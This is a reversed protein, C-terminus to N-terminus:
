PIIPLLGLKILLNELSYFNFFDINQSAITTTSPNDSVTFVVDNFDNDSYPGKSDKDEFAVLLSNCSGSMILQAQTTKDTPSNNVTTFRPNDGGGSAVFKFGGTQANLTPIIFFGIKKGEEFLVAVDNVDKILTSVIPSINGILGKANGYIIHEAKIIGNETEDVTVSKKIDIIGNKAEDYYYWGITNNYGCYKYELWAYLNTNDTITIFGDKSSGDFLPAFASKEPKSDGEKFLVPFCAKIDQDPICKLCNEPDGLQPLEFPESEEVFYGLTVTNRTDKAERVTFILDNYDEDSNMRNQASMSNLDEFAVVVDGCSSVGMIHSIKGEEVGVTKNLEKDTAIFVPRNDNDKELIIESATTGKNPLLYFGVVDGKDFPVMDNGEVHKGLKFTTGFSLGTTYAYVVQKFSVGNKDSTFVQNLVYGEKNANFGADDPNYYYYGLVNNFAAIKGVYTLYIFGGEKVVIGSPVNELFDPNVQQGEKLFNVQNGNNAYDWDEAAYLPDNSEFVREAVKLTVKEGNETTIGGNESPTDKQCSVVLSAGIFVLAATKAFQFM